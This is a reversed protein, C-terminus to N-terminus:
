NSRRRLGVLGLAGALLLALSTPEPIRACCEGDLGFPPYTGGEYYNGVRFTGSSSSAGTAYWKVQLWEVCGQEDCGIGPILLDLNYVDNKYSSTPPTYTDITATQVQTDGCDIWDVTVTCSTPGTSSSKIGGAYLFDPNFCCGEAAEVTFVFSGGDAFGKASWQSSAPYSPYSAGDAIDMTAYEICEALTGNNGSTAFDFPYELDNKVNYTDYRALMEANAMTCVSMIALGALAFLMMRKM